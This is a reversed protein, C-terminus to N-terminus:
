DPDATITVTMPTGPGMGTRSYGVVKGDLPVTYSGSTPISGFNAPYNTFNWTSFRNGIYYQSHAKAVTSRYNRAAMMYRALVWKMMMVAVMSLVVSMVLTQLLVVGKRWRPKM